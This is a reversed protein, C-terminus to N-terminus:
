VYLLVDDKNQHYAEHHFYKEFRYENKKIKQNRKCIYFM